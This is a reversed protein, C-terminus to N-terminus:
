TPVNLIPEVDKARFVELASHKTLFTSFMISIHNHNTCVKKKEVQCKLCIKESRKQDTETTTTHLRLSFSSCFPEWSERVHLYKRKKFPQKSNTTQTMPNLCEQHSIETAFAASRKRVRQIGSKYETISSNTDFSRTSLEVKSYLHQEQQQESKPRFKRPSRILSSAARRVVQDVPSGSIQVSHEQAQNLVSDMRQTRTPQERQMSHESIQCEISSQGFLSRGSELPHLDWSTMIAHPPVEMPLAYGLTNFAGHFNHNNRSNDFTLDPQIDESGFVLVEKPLLPMSDSDPSSLIAMQGLDIHEDTTLTSETTNPQETWVTERDLWASFDLNNPFTDM